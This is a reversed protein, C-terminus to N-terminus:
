LSWGKHGVVLYRMPRFHGNYGHRILFIDENISRVCTTGLLAEHILVVSIFKWDMWPYVRQFQGDSKLKSAKPWQRKAPPRNHQGATGFM